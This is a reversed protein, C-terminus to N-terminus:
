RDPIRPLCLQAAGARARPGRGAALSGALVVLPVTGNFDAIAAGAKRATEADPRRAIKIVQVAEAALGAPHALVHGSGLKARAFADSEALRTVARRSLRDVKRALPDMSGDPAVMIVLRGELAAVDEASIAEFTTELPTTM